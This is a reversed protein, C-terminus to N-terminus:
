IIISKLMFKMRLDDRQLLQLVKHRLLLHAGDGSSIAGLNLHGGCGTHRTSLDLRKDRRRLLLLLLLLLYEIQL